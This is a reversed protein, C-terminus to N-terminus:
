ATAELQEQVFERWDGAQTCFDKEDDKYFGSGESQKERLFADILIRARDKRSLGFMWWNGFFDRSEFELPFRKDTYRDASRKIYADGFRKFADGMYYQDACKDCLTQGGLIEVDEPGCMLGCGDCMVLTSKELMERDEFRKLAAELATEEDVM